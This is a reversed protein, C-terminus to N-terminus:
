REQSRAGGARRMAPLGAGVNTAVYRHRYPWPQGSQKYSATDRWTSFGGRSLEGFVWPLCRLDCLGHCTAVFTPAPKGAIRRAPPARDPSRQLDTPKRRTAMMRDRSLRGPTVVPRRFLHTSVWAEMTGGTAGHGICDFATSGIGRQWLEDRGGTFVGLHGEGGGHLALLYIDSSAPRHDIHLRIGAYHVESTM